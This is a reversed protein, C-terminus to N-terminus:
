RRGHQNGSGDRPQTGDCTGNGYTSGSNAGGQGAGRGRGNGAYAGLSMSAVLMVTMVFILFRKM